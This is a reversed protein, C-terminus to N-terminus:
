PYSADDHDNDTDDYEEENQFKAWDTNRSNQGIEIEPIKDHQSKDEDNGHQYCIERQIVTIVSVVLM